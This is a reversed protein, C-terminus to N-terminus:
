GEGLIDGRPELAVAPVDQAHAVGVVEAADLLGEPGEPLRLATWRQDDEVAVDSIARRVLVVRGCGVALREALFLDAEGLAAVAPRLIRLEQDGLAHALPERGADARAARSCALLPRRQELGIPRRVGLQRALDLLHLP